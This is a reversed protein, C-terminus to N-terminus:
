AGTGMGEKAYKSSFDANFAREVMKEAEAPLVRMKGLGMPAVLDQM